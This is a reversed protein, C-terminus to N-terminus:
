AIRRKIWGVLALGLGVLIPAAPAPVSVLQVNDLLMGINDGGLGEFTISASSLSAVSFPLVFEQFPDTQALSYSQSVIGGVSVSVDVQETTGSRHNGALDFRLEYDGVDLNLAVSSLMRGADGTSGDMDVYLGNGPQFDYPSGVGILDVTGDLVTWQTFSSFNLAWAGGNETDFNDTFVIDAMATGAFSMAAGAAIMILLNKKM